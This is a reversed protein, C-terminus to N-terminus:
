PKASSKPPAPKRNPTGSMGWASVVPFQSGSAIPGNIRFRMEPVWSWNDYNGKYVNFTFARIQISDKAITPKDRTTASGTISTAGAVILLFMFVCTLKKKLTFRRLTRM